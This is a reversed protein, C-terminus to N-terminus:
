SILTENTSLQSIKINKGVLSIGRDERTHAGTARSLEAPTCRM